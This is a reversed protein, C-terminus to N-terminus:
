TIIRVHSVQLTSPIRSRRQTAGRLNSDTLNAGSLNADSLNAGRLNSDSLIAGRLNSDSLNSRHLDAGILDSIAEGAWRRHNWERVGEKGGKLLRLAEDRDM